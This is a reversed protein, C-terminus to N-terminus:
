QMTGSRLAVALDTVNKSTDQNERAVGHGIVTEAGFTTTIPMDPHPDVPLEIYYDGSGPSAGSSGMHVRGWGFLWGGIITYQGGASGNGLSPDTTTAKLTPSWSQPPTFLMYATGGASAKLNGALNLTVDNGNVQIDGGPDFIIEGTPAFGPLDDSRPGSVVFNGALIHVHGPLDAAVNTKFTMGGPDLRIWTGNSAHRLYLNGELQMSGTSSDLYFGATASTDMSALNAPVAGDWNASWFDSRITVDNFEAKGD